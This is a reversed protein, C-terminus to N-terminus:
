VVIGLGTLCEFFQYQSHAPTDQDHLNIATSALDRLNLSFKMMM